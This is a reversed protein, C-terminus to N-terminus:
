ETEVDEEQGDRMEEYIAELMTKIRRQIEERQDPDYKLSPLIESILVATESRPREARLLSNVRGRVMRLYDSLSEVEAQSIVGGRGPVITWDAYRDESLMQLSNLWLKSLGDTVYPHQNAILMDGVFIVKEDALSISSSGATASPTHNLTIVHKGCHLLLTNTFSIQPPVIKLNAIEVVDADNISLEEASQTIFANKLNSMIEASVEHAIVPAEFWINGLIRDRHHDTNIVYRIPQNNIDRLATKWARADRPYPPTDICVWGDSTSIAGVTVLAYDTEIFVGPAIERILFNDENGM